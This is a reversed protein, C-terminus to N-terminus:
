LGIMFWSLVAEWQFAFFTAMAPTIINKFANEPSFHAAFDLWQILAFLLFAISIINKVMSDQLLAQLAHNRSRSSDVPTNFVKSLDNNTKTVNIPTDGTVENGQLDKVVGVGKAEVVESSNTNESNKPLQTELTSLASNIETKIQDQNYYFVVGLSYIAFFILVFIFPKKM